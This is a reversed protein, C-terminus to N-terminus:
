KSLADNIIAVKAINAEHGANTKAFYKKGSIDAVFYLYDSGEPNQAALISDLQPSAIPGIPFGAIEYTDYKSGLVIPDDLFICDAIDRDQQCVKKGLGYSVTPDSQLRSGNEIRNYFVGAILRREQQLEARNADTIGGPRGAEKEVMSAVIVDTQLKKSVKIKNLQQEFGDLFKQTIEQPTADEYLQYTNPYLYGEYYYKACKKINGYECTLPEPLFSYALEAHPKTVYELWNKTSLIGEKQLITAMEDVTKGEPITVSKAVRKTRAAEADSIALSQKKLSKVLEDPNQSSVQYSGPVLSAGSSALRLQFLTASNILKKDALKKSIGESGDGSSIDISVAAGSYAPATNWGQHFVFGGWGILGMLVLTIIFKFPSM